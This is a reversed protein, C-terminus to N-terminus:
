LQNATFTPVNAATADTLTGCVTGGTGGLAVRELNERHLLSFSVHRQLNEPTGFKRQCLTCVLAAWDVHSEEGASPCADPGQAPVAPSPAAASAPASGSSGGSAGPHEWQSQQTATNFYYPLGNSADVCAHWGPPLTLGTTASTAADTTAPASTPVSAVPQTPATSDSSCVPAAAPAAVAALVTGSKNGPAAPKKAKASLGSFTVMARRNLDPLLMPAAPAAASALQEAAAATEVPAVTSEAMAPAAAPLPRSVAQREAPTLLEIPMAPAAAVLRATLAQEATTLLESPYPRYQRAIADYYTWVGRTGDCYLDRAACTPLLDSRIWPKIVKPM